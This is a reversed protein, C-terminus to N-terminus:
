TIWSGLENLWGPGRTLNSLLVYVQPLNHPTVRMTLNCLLVYVQPLNHPTVRMILNSLLVYVQPLNHPHGENDSQILTGIRSPSQPPDDTLNSLLVYYVQPLNHPVRM